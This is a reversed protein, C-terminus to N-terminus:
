ILELKLTSAEPLIYIYIYIYINSSNSGKWKKMFRAPKKFLLMLQFKIYLNLDYQATTV